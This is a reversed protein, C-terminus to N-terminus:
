FKWFFLRWTVIPCIDLKHRVQMERLEQIEWFNQLVVCIISVKQCWAFDHSLANHIVHWMRWMVNQNVRQSIIFIFFYNKSSCLVIVDIIISENNGSMIKGTCSQLSHISSVSGTGCRGSLQNIRQERQQQQSLQQNAAQQQQNAAAQVQHFEYNNRNYQQQQQQYMNLSQQSGMFQQQNMGFNIASFIVDYNWWWSEYRHNMTLSEGLVEQPAEWQVTEIKIWRWLAEVSVWCLDIQVMNPVMEILNISNTFLYM